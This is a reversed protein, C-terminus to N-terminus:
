LRDYEERTGIWKWVSIDPAPFHGTARARLGARASWQRNSLQKFQLSPHFPSVRGLACNKRALEQIRGPLERYGRCFEPDAKAKM